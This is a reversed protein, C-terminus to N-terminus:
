VADDAEEAMDEESSTDASPMSTTMGGALFKNYIMLGAAYGLTITAVSILMGMVDFGKKPTEVMDM